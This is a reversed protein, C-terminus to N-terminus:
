RIEVFFIYFSKVNMLLELFTSNSIFHGLKQLPIASLKLNVVNAYCNYKINSKRSKLSILMYELWM